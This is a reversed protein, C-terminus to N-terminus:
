TKPSRIGDDDAHQSDKETATRRAAGDVASARQTFNQVNEHGDTDRQISCNQKEEGEARADKSSGFKEYSNGECRSCQRLIKPFEACNFSSKTVQLLFQECYDVFKVYFLAIM